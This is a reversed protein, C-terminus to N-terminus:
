IFNIWCPFKMSLETSCPFVKIIMPSPQYETVLLLKRAHPLQQSYEDSNTVARTGDAM